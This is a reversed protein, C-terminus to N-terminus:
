LDSLVMDAREDNTRKQQRDVYRTDLGEHPGLVTIRLRLIVLSKGVVAWAIENRGGSPLQRTYYFGPKFTWFKKSM